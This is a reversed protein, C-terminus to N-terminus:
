TSPEILEDEEQDLEEPTPADLQVAFYNGSRDEMGPFVIGIGMLDGVADLPERTPSKRQPVSTQDIPYLLLLPVNPRRAKLASWSEKAAHSKDEADILVDRKSMLAKIDAYSTDTNVLRSRRSTNVRGLKGLARVSLQGDKPSIIGVNWERLSDEYRDLYGLLLVQKLDMHADSIRYTALFRRIMSFPVERFQLSEAGGAEKQLIGDVLQTAANWNGAVVDADKHEFRITQVHRGDFSISTRLANRMKSASTIAMGPIGRVRVAFDLPTADREQYVLIEERIEQEIQALARFDSHLGPTTWLRPLDEYGHRYGFWRGMQLLTDYQRSTRLFFSVVLGELTLGRALVSGGVVVYTRPDADYDLRYESVSNEVVVEMKDLTVALHGSLEDGDPFVQLPPVSAAEDAMLSVLRDYESGKKSRLDAGHQDLWGEIMEATRIHPEIYPSTHVLMTMHNGADRRSRRIACTALFWLLADRLEEGVHPEFTDKDDRRAPRYNDLNKASITRIMNRGAEDETEEGADDPALGFVELAGFYNAPRPLSTIFDDPYLDDLEERNHPFPDIFVNAFPTATYGVYSVAPLKRIIKRIRENIATMDFAEKSANVSAQDCEDDIMLVKLKRLTTAPTKEIIRHFAELRTSVKKMVALQAKGKQPETFAGNAPDTFDGNDDKTTYLQWHHRHRMVVDSEIRGQTQARLKNTMGALIVILNYGADVAKAIVATMNATKGSQVHGVVLGRCRFQARMPNALLSVVESSSADISSVTADGWNKTNKLFAEVQPWHLDHPSPGGYWNDRPKIISNRRLIQIPKLSAKVRELAIGLNKRLDDSM